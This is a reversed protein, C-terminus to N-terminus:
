TTLVKHLKAIAVKVIQSARQPSIGYLNALDQLRRHDGGDGLNFKASLLNCERLSLGEMASQLLRANEYYSVEDPIPASCDDGLIDLWTRGDSDWIPEDLRAMPGVKNERRKRMGNASNLENRIAITAYTM